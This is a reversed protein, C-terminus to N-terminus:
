KNVTYAGQAWILIPPMIIIIIIIIIFIIILNTKKRRRRRQEEICNGPRRPLLRSQHYHDRNHSPQRYILHNVRTSPEHMAIPSHSSTAPQQWAPQSIVPSFNSLNHYCPSPELRKHQSPLLLQVSHSIHKLHLWQIERPRSDAHQCFSILNIDILGKNLRYLM